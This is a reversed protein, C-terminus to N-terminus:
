LNIKDNWVELDSFTTKKCTRVMYLLKSCNGSLSISNLTTCLHPFSYFSLAQSGKLLAIHKRKNAHDHVCMNICKVHVFVCLCTHAHDHLLYLCTASSLPERAKDKWEKGRRQVVYFLFLIFYFTGFFFSTNDNHGMLHCSWQRQRQHQTINCPSSRPHLGNTFYYLFSFLFRGFWFFVLGQQWWRQPGHCSTADQWWWRQQQRNNNNNMAMTMTTHHPTTTHRHTHSMLRHAAMACSRITQTCGLPYIFGQMENRIGWNSVNTIQNIIKILLQLHVLIPLYIYIFFDTQVPGLWNLGTKKKEEFQAVAVPQNKFFHHVM